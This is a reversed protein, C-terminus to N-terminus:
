RSQIRPVLLPGAQEVPGRKEHHYSVKKGSADVIDWALRHLPLTEPKEPHFALGMEASEHLFSKPIEKPEMLEPSGLSM